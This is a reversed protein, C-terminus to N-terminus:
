RAGCRRAERCLAGSGSMSHACNKRGHRSLRVFAIHMPKVPKHRLDRTEFSFLVPNAARILARVRLQPVHDAAPGRHRPLL